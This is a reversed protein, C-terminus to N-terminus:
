SCMYYEAIWFWHKIQYHNAIPKEDIIEHIEKAEYLLPKNQHVEVALATYVKSKGFPVAIRMGPKIFYFEAESVSYTFTKNLALPLIVEVFFMTGTINNVDTRTNKRMEDCLVLPTFIYRSSYPKEIRNKKSRFLTTYPFLTSRPPLRILLFFFFISTNFILFIVFIVL